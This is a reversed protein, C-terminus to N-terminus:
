AVFREIHEIVWDHDIGEEVLGSQAWKAYDKPHVLRTQDAAVDYILYYAPVGQGALRLMTLDQVGSTEFDPNAAKVEIWVTKWRATISLDPVGSLSKDEHRFAVWEPHKAHIKEMLKGKLKAETMDEEIATRIKWVV